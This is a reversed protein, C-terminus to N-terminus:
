FAAVPIRTTSLHNCRTVGNLWSGYKGHNEWASEVKQLRISKAITPFDSKDEVNLMALHHSGEM